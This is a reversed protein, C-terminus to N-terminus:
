DSSRWYRPHPDSDRAISRPLWNRLDNLSSTPKEAIKMPDGSPELLAATHSEIVGDAFIKAASVNLRRGRYEERLHALRAVENTGKSPDVLPAAIVRATLEGRRDLELYAGLHEEEARAEQLSTIGFRNALSLGKRLGQVCEARTYKPLSKRVLEAADERLTGSPEGSRPDREIHGPVPDPTAATVGAIQLARSNVWASHGDSSSLFVARDPVIKDLLLKNPNANQFVPLEWGGGRVWPDEPHRHAYARIALLVQDQNTLGHLDCERLGIGGEIPHVHADHFGPVLMKGKLDVVITKAAIRSTSERDSGIYVIRGDLIGVAEAWSRAADETYVAGHRFLLDVPQARTGAPGTLAVIGLLTRVLPLVRQKPPYPLPRM